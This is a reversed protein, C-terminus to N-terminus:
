IKILLNNTGMIGSYEISKALRYVLNIGREKENDEENGQTEHYSVPNFSPCDDRIRLIIGNSKAIVRLDVSHAKGDKFGHKLINTGLEETICSLTKAKDEFGNEQCFLAFMSATPKIEEMIDISVSIEKDKTFDPALLLRRPIKSLSDKNSVIYFAAFGLMIM